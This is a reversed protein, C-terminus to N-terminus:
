DRLAGIAQASIGRLFSAGPIQTPTGSIRVELQPRAAEGGNPEYTAEITFNELSEDLKLSRVLKESRWNAVGVLCFETPNLGRIEQLCALYGEEDAISSAMVFAPSLSPTRAQSSVASSEHTLASMSMYSLAFDSVHAFLYMMSFLLPLMIVAEIVGVGADSRSCSSTLRYDKTCNDLSPRGTVGRPALEAFFRHSYWRSSCGGFRTRVLSDAVWM